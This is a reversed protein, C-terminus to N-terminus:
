WQARDRTLDHREAVHGLQADLAAGRLHAALVLRAADGHLEVHATAVHQRHDAVGLRGHGCLHLHGGAVAGLPAALELMVLLGPRTQEHDHRESEREDQKKSHIANREM